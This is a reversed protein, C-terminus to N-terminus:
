GQSPDNRLSTGQMCVTPVATSGWCRMVVWFLICLQMCRRMCYHPSVSVRSIAYRFVYVFYVCAKFVRSDVANQAGWWCTFQNQAQM